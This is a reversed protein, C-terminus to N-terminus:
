VSGLIKETSRLRKFIFSFQFYNFFFILFLQAELLGNKRKNETFKIDHQVFFAKQKKAFFFFFFCFVYCIPFRNRQTDAEGRAKCDFKTQQQQCNSSHWNKIVAVDCIFVAPSVIDCYVEDVLSETVFDNKIFALTSLSKM